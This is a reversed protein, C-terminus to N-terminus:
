SRYECVKQRIVSTSTHFDLANATLNPWTDRYVDTDIQDELYLGGTLTDLFVFTAGDRLDFITHPVGMARHGPLALPLVQVTAVRREVMEQIHELQEAMVEAGGVPQVLASEGVVAWLAVDNERARTQREMRLQVRERLEGEDMDPSGLQMLATAYAETQLLAPILDITFASVKVADSELEVLDVAKGLVDDSYTHWWGRRRSQRALEALADTIAKDAGYEECLTRADDGTIGMEAREMRSIKGKDFGSADAVQQVTM